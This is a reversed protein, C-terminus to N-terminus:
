VNPHMAYRWRAFRQAHENVAVVAFEGIRLFPERIERLIEPSNCGHAWSDSPVRPQDARQDFGAAQKLAHSVRVESGGGM